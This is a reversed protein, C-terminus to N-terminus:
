FMRFIWWFAMGYMFIMAIWIVTFAIGIVLGAIAVSKGKLSPDKSTQSMAIAGFIIALISFPALFVGIIGLILSTIAMGSTREATASRQPLPQQYVPQQVPPPQITAQQVPTQQSTATGCKACYRSGEPIQEGCKACYM